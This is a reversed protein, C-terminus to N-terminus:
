KNYSYDTLILITIHYSGHYNTIHYYHLYKFHNLQPWNFSLKVGTDDPLTKQDGQSVRQPLCDFYYPCKIAKHHVNVTEQNCICITCKHWSCDLFSYTPSPNTNM